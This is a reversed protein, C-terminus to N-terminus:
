QGDQPAPALVAPVNQPAPPARRPEWRAKQADSLDIMGLWAFVRM